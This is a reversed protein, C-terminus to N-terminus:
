LDKLILIKKNPINNIIKDWTEIFVILAPIKIPTAVNNNGSIRVSPPYKSNM